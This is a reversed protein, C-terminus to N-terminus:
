LLFLYAGINTKNDIKTDQECTDEVIYMSFETYKELGKTTPTEQKQSRQKKATTKQAQLFECCYRNWVIIYYVFVLVPPVLHTQLLFFHAGLNAVIDKKPIQAYVWVRLWSLAFPLGTCTAEAQAHDPSPDLWM